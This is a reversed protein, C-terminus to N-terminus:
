SPWTHLGNASGELAAFGGRTPDVQDTAPRKQVRPDHKSGDELNCQTAWKPFAPVRVHVLNHTANGLFERKVLLM